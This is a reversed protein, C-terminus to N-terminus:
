TYFSWGLKNKLTTYFNYSLPHIMQIKKEMVSVFFEGPSKIQISEQGDAIIKLNRHSRGACSISVKQISPIVLPRLSLSHAHLPVILQVNLLPDLVPGGASLAYATSGTPTAILLGDGRQELANVDNINVKFDIMHSHDLDSIVFDNLCMLSGEFSLGTLELMTREEILYQNNNLIDTLSEELENPSIDTLFGLRGCNVGLVPISTGFIARVGRLFSGDGGVILMLDIDKVLEKATITPIEPTYLPHTKLSLKLKSITETIKEITKISRSDQYSGILGINTFKKM